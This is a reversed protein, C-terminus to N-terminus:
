LGLLYNIVDAQAKLADQLQKMQEAQSPEPQSVPKPRIWIGDVLVDDPQPEEGDPVPTMVGLCEDTYIQEDKDYVTKKYVLGNEIRYLEM